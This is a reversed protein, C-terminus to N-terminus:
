DWVYNSRSCLVFLRVYESRKDDPICEAECEHVSTFVADGTTRPRPQCYKAGPFATGEPASVCAFSHACGALCDAQTSFTGRASQECTGDSISRALMAVRWSDTM